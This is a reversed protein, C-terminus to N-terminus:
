LEQEIQDAASLARLLALNVQSPDLALNSTLLSVEQPDNKEIAEILALELSFKGSDSSVSDVIDNSLSIMSFLKEFPTHTIKDLLSFAGTIFLADRDHGNGVQEMFLGRRISASMLPAANVDRSTTSLLLSLWRMLRTYGLMMVAHQFSTIEVSLGFAPSNIFKLLKFSLATDLRLTNEIEKVDAAQNVLSILKVVIAQSPNLQTAAQMVGEDIPWGISVTAGRMFAADADAVNTIGAIAFRFKRVTAAGPPPVKGKRRDESDNIVSYEFLDLLEPKLGFAARGRVAMRVGKGAMIVVLGQVEEQHLTIAPIELIVNKPAIWELLSRDYAIGFPAILLTKSSTPLTSTLDNLITGISLPAEAPRSILSIRTGIARRSRDIMSSYCITLSGLCNATHGPLIEM